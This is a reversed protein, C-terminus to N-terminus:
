KLPSFVACFWRLIKVTKEVSLVITHGCLLVGLYSLIKVKSFISKNDGSIRILGDTCERMKYLVTKSFHLLFGGRTLQLGRM